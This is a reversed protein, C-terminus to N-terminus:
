ASSWRAARGHEAAGAALCYECLWDRHIRMSRRTKYLVQPGGGACAERLFKDLWETDM